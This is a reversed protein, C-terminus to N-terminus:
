RQPKLQELEGAQFRAVELQAMDPERRETKTWAAEKGKASKRGDEKRLEM